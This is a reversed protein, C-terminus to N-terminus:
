PQRAAARFAEAVDLEEQARAACFDSDRGEERAIALSRRAKRAYALVGRCCARRREKEIRERAADILDLPEVWGDFKDLIEGQFRLVDEPTRLDGDVLYPRHEPASM